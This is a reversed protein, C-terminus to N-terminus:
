RVQLAHRLAQPVLGVAATSALAAAAGGDSAAAGGGGAAAKEGAKVFGQIQRFLWGLEALRGALQRAGAPVASARPLVFADRADDWKLHAGDINQMVFLLERVLAAESLEGGDSTAVEWKPPKRVRSSGSSHAGNTASIVSPPDPEPALIVGKASTSPPPATVNPRLLAGRGPVVALPASTSHLLSGLLQLTAPLHRLGHDSQELRQVSESYALADTACGAQLLRRRTGEGVAAGALPGSSMRSNLIRLCLQLLRQGRPDDTELAPVLREVLTSVAAVLDM